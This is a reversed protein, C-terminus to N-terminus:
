RDILGKVKIRLDHVQKANFCNLESFSVDVDRPYGPDHLMNKIRMRLEIRKKNLEEHPLKCKDLHTGVIIILSSPARVQINLLWPQLHKLESEGNHFNYM